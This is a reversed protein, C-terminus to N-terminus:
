QMDMPEMDPTSASMYIGEVTIGISFSLQQNSLIVVYEQGTLTLRCAYSGGDSTALPSFVLSENLVSIRNPSIDVTNGDVTWEVESSNIPLSELDFVCSLSYSTGAYLNGSRSEEITPM